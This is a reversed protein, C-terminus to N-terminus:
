PAEAVHGVPRGQELCERTRRLEEPDRDGVVRAPNGAVISMPPVDQTVVAGAGILCGDGITVGPLVIANAGIFVDSGITVPRGGRIPGHTIVRSGLGVVVNDGITVLQPNVRDIRGYLRVNRGLRLGRSKYYAVTLRYVVACVARTVLTALAIFVRM